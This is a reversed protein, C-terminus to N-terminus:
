GKEQQDTDTYRHDIYFQQQVQSIISKRVRKSRAKIHPSVALRLKNDQIDIKFLRLNENPEFDKIIFFEDESLLFPPVFVPIFLKEFDLHTNNLVHWNHVNKLSTPTGLVLSKAKSLNSNHIEVAAMDLVTYDNYCITEFHANKLITTISTIIDIINVDEQELDIFTNVFSPLLTAVLEEAKFKQEAITLFCTINNKILDEVDFVNSFWQQELMIQFSDKEM